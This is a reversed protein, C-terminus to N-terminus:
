GYYRVEQYGEHELFHVDHFRNALGGVPVRCVHNTPLQQERLPGAFDSGSSPTGM